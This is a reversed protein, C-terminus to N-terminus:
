FGAAWKFARWFLGCTAGIALTSLVSLVVLGLCSFVVESATRYMGPTEKM